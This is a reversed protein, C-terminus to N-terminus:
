ECGVGNGDRDLDYVDIGTVYVPGSVYAPGNGSGGACDVDSAIPVCGSYNSNCNSSARMQPAPTPAPKPAVYVYTGVHTVQTVPVKTIENKTEKRATERGNTYTVDYTITREGNVGPITIQREGLTIAGDQQETSDFAILETKTESKVKPKAAETQRQREKAAAAETQQVEQKAAAEQATRAEKISAPETAAMVTGFGFLTLFVSALGVILIVSRSVPKNILKHKNLIHPKILFFLTAMILGIFCITMLIGSIYYVADM